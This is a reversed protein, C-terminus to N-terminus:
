EVVGMWIRRFYFCRSSIAIQTIWTKERSDGRFRSYGKYAKYFAEWTAEEALHVDKLFMYCLRMLSKSYENILREIDPKVEQATPLIFFMLRGGKV